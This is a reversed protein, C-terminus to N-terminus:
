TSLPVCVDRGAEELHVMKLRINYLESLSEDSIVNDVDGFTMHGQKDLIGVKGGLMIVHDPVHTTMLIAFGARALERILKITRLQNGYDLHATPEDLLVLKPKQVLVRAITVQQREGGSIETYPKAALHMINMQELAQAALVYDADRPQSLMSIYPTRGMVVFDLVSYAYTPNHIQPVYGVLKAIESLSMSYVSKGTVMIEGANPQYLQAICNLLTSKGAGNTGLISMIEGDKINFNVNEFTNQKRRPYNFALNHVELINM